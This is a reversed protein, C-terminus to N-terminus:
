LPAKSMKKGGVAVGYGEVWGYGENGYGLNAASKSLAPGVAPILNLLNSALKSSKLFENIKSGIDKITSLFDGGGMQRVENYSIAPSGRASLVDQRSIVGLQKAASNLATVTFTGENVIVVVLSWTVNDWATSPNMNKVQATVQLNFNGLTGPATYPNPISIDTGFNACIISGQGGFPASAANPPFTNNYSALGSFQLWSQNSGNKVSMAYLQHQDASSMLIENDWQIQLQQISYYCDTLDCRNLLTNMNPRAYIFM